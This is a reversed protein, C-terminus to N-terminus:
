LADTKSGRRARDHWLRWDALNNPRREAIHWFIGCPDTLFAVRLDVATNSPYPAETRDFVRIKPTLRISANGIPTLIM